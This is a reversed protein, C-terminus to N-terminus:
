PNPVRVINSSASKGNANTARVRYAARQSKIHSDVYQGTGAPLEAIHQWSGRENSDDRREVVIHEPNGGHGEWTLKVGTGTAVAILSSPAEPLVPWDFYDADAVAFISDTVPINELVDSTGKKWALSHIEGFVV